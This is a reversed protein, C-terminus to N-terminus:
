IQYFHNPYRKLAHVIKKNKNEISTAGSSHEPKLFMKKKFNKQDNHDTEVLNQVPYPTM